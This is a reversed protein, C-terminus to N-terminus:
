TQNNLVHVFFLPKPSFGKKASGQKSVKEAHHLFLQMSM